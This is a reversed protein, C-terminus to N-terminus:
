NSFQLVTFYVNKVPFKVERYKKKKKKKKQSPPPSSDVYLIASMKSPKGQFHVSFM